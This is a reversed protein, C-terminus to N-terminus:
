RRLPYLEFKEKLLSEIYGSISLKGKQKKIMNFLNKDIDICIKMKEALSIHIIVNGVKEENIKDCPIIVPKELDKGFILLTAKNQIIKDKQNETLVVKLDGTKTKYGWKPEFYGKETKFKPTKKYQIIKKYGESNLWEYCKEVAIM